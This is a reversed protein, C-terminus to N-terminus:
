RLPRVPVCGKIDFFEWGVEDPTRAYVEMSPDHTPEYGSAPLWDRFLYNWAALLVEGDGQIHLTAFLNARIRRIGIEGDRPTGEPVTYCVDYTCKEVPTIEPHDLSMGILTGTRHFGRRRAWDMMRTFAASVNGEAYSNHVRLFAVTQAPRPLVRVRLPHRAQVRSVLDRYEADGLTAKCNKRKEALAAPDFRSPAIGYETKFSRSFDASSNFGCRFAIDTLTMRPSYKRLFVAKELRQRKIYDSLTEGTVAHFIRHFHFPSFHSIRALSHLPLPEDIHEAVYDMVRHIRAHYESLSQRRRM